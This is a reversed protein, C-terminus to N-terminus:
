FAYDIQQPSFSIFMADGYSYFRYNERIAHNYAKRIKEYGGFASV